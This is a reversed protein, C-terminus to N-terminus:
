RINFSELLYNNDVIGRIKGKLEELQKDIQKPTEVVKEDTIFKM